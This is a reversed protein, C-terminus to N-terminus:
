ATREDQVNVKRMTCCSSNNVLRDSSTTPIIDCEILLVESSVIDYTQHLSLLRELGEQLLRHFMVALNERAAGQCRRVM